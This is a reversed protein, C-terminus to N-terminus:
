ANQQAKVARQIHDACQRVFQPVAEMCVAHELRAGGIQLAARRDVIGPPTGFREPPSQRHDRDPAPSQGVPAGGQPFLRPDLREGAGFFLQESHTDRRFADSDPM